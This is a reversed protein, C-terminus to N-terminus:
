DREGRQVRDMRDQQAMIRDILKQQGEAILTQRLDIEDKQRRWGNWEKLAEERKNELAVLGAQTSALGQTTTKVWIAVAAVSMVVAFGMGIVMRLLTAIRTMMESMRAISGLNEEVKQWDDTSMAM